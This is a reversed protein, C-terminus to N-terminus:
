DGDSFGGYQEPWLERAQTDLWDAISSCAKLMARNYDKGRMGLRSGVQRNGVQVEWRMAHPHFSISWYIRARHLNELVAELTPKKWPLPRSQESTSM